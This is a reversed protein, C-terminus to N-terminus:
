RIMRYHVAEEMDKRVDDLCADVRNKPISCFINVLREDLQTGSVRKIESVAEAYPLTARYARDMTIASYTDAIAIIRSGLPIQNGTLQHYGGGDIREHHYLIYENIREFGPIDKLIRVSMEPHRKVIDWENDGLKGSKELIDNPIQLKGIDILLSAYYLDSRRIFFRDSLPLFNYLAMSLNHVHLSHGDLSPNDVEIIGVLIELLRGTRCKIKYTKYCQYIGVVAFIVLLLILLNFIGSDVLIM